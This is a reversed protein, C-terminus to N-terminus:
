HLAPPNVSLGTKSGALGSVLRREAALKEMNQLARVFELPSHIRFVKGSQSRTAHYLIDPFEYGRRWYPKFEFYLFLPRKSEGQALPVRLKENQRATPGLFLVVDPPQDAQLEEDILGALLDVHGTQKQLVRYSVTGLELRQMAAPLKTWGEADFREQRFLEAQQDLNFAVLKVDTFSTQRLLALLASLLMAQDYAHLRNTWAYLPAVHLLITLRRPPAASELSGDWQDLVASQVSGPDQSPKILRGGPSRVEIKWQKRCVRANQDAVILDIAYEGEGFFYAGDVQVKNKSLGPIDRVRFRQSFYVPDGPPNVPTVRTLIAFLPNTGRYDKLSWSAFYGAQFRFSFNLDPKLQAVTCAFGPKTVPQDFLALVQPHRSSDVPAQALCVSHVVLCGLMGLRTPGM